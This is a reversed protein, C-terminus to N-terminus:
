TIYLNVPAFEMNQGQQDKETDTARGKNLLCATM